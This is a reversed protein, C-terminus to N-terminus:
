GSKAALTEVDGLAIGIWDSESDKEDDALPEQFEPTKPGSADRYRQILNYCHNADQDWHHGNPCTTWLEKERDWQCEIGCVHCNATAMVSRKNPDPVTVGRKTLMYKLAERFKSPASVARNRRQNRNQEPNDKTALKALNFDDVIVTGYKAALRVAILRYMERRCGLADDRQNSEYLYLHLSKERWAWLKGFAELDGDFRNERWKEAIRRLTRHSKVKSLYGRAEALWEPLERNSLFGTLESMAANFRDDQISRLDDCHHIRYLVSRDALIEEYHGTSDVLFGVRLDRVFRSGVRVGGTLKERWAVNIAAVASPNYDRARKVAIPKSFEVDRLSFEATWRFREGVRERRIAIEKITTTPPLPRHLIVHFEAWLPRRSEDSGVRLLMLTRTAKSRAKANTAAYAREPVPDIRIRQDKGGFAKAVSLGGQLQVGVAGSGDWKRFQPGSRTEKATEVQKEVLLYIGWYLGNNKRASKVADTARANVNGLAQKVEPKKLAEGFWTKRKARYEVASANLVKLEARLQNAEETKKSRKKARLMALLETRQASLEELKANIADLDGVGSDKLTASFEARRGKEIEILSNRYGRAQGLLRDIQAATEPSTVNGDLDASLGYVFRRGPRGDQVVGKKKPM